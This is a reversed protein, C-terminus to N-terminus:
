GRHYKEEAIKAYNAPKTIWELDARFPPKGDRGQARGMLFDSQSIFDFYNEWHELDPLDERFRQKLYGRRTETLKEVKPLTPLKAHYLEVIKKIPIGNRVAPPSSSDRIHKEKIETDTDTDTYAVDAVPQSVKRCKAVSNIKNSKKAARKIALRDRDAKRKDERNALNRYKMYNVIKWGWPRHDDLREIRRGEEEPSRSYDDEKELTELGSSIIDLPIGTRAALAHPTIDVVGQDDALIIMQQFTM